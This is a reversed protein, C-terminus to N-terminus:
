TRQAAGGSGAPSGRSELAQCLEAFSKTGLAEAAAGEAGALVLSLLTEAPNGSAAPPEGAVASRVDALSIHELPRAPVLGGSAVELVLRRGRLTAVMERVPEAFTGIRLAIEASDPPLAGARFALAVELMVRSALLERGLVTGQGAPAHGALIVRAHQAVFAVRAGFLVVTWSVYLWLLFIPVSAVSGYIAHYRFFRAVALTYLAKALEWALGAVLGGVAAAWPRVRTAPLFLYAAAFLLCSVLVAAVRVLVQGVPAGELFASVAHGLTLSGALLLPGLTLGAWYLLARQPLPRSRRVWWIDNVAREVQGFLSVASFVLLAGGVLGASTAHANRVFRDLYPEISARAGVALNDLLYGHIGRWMADTGAFARVVTFAVVLAPVLAFLSLYTLAMARLRVSEGRMAHLLPRAAALGRAARTM